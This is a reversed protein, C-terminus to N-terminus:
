KPEGPKEADAKAIGLLESMDRRGALAFMLWIQSKDLLGAVGKIGEILNPLRNYIDAAAVALERDANVGKNLEKFSKSLMVLACRRTAMTDKWWGELADMEEMTTLPGQAKLKRLMTVGFEDQPMEGWAKDGWEPLANAPKRGKPKQTASNDKTAM